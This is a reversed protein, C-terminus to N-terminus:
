VQCRSRPQMERKERRERKGGRKECLGRTEGRESRNLAASNAASIASDDSVFASLFSARLPSTVAAAASSSSAGDDEAVGRGGGAAAAAAGEVEAEAMAEAEAGAEEAGRSSTSRM